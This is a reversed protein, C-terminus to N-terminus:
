PTPWRSGLFYDKRKQTAPEFMQEINTTKERVDKRINLKSSNRVDSRQFTLAHGYRPM